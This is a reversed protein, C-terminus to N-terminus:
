KPVARGAMARELEAAVVERVAPKKLMSFAGLEMVKEITQKQIDASLVIVVADPFEARIEALVEMGSKVPMTLDLFTVDPRVSRFLDLAGASDGTETLEHGLEKPICSKISMRAVVSDDVVLIRAM